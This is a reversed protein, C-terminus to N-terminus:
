RKDTVGPKQGIWIPHGIAEKRIWAIPDRGYDGMYDGPLNIGPIGPIWVERLLKKPDGYKSALAIVEPDDLATLHGKDILTKMQGDATKGALTPFFQHIHVHVWPLGLKLGQKRLRMTVGFGCHVYGARVREHLFNGYLQFLGQRPMRFGGPVTGVACEFFWFMGPAPLKCKPEGDWTMPYLPWEVNRYKELKERWAEGYTGGGEIRIVQGGDIHAKLRPYASLHNVTGVIVGHCDDQGNNGYGINIPRAYQHMALYGREDKYNTWEVGAIVMAYGEQKVMEIATATRLQDTIATYYYSYDGDERDIAIAEHAALREPPAVPTSDLTLLDVHAGNERIAQCVAEVLMTDYESLSVLLVKDGAKINYGPMLVHYDKGPPHNVLQRVKPMIEDISKPRRFRPYRPSPYGNM